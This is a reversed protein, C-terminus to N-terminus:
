SMKAGPPRAPALPVAPLDRVLGCAMAGPLPLSGAGATGEGATDASLSQSPSALGKPAATVNIHALVHRAVPVTCPTPM